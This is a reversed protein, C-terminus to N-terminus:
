KAPRITKANFVLDMCTAEVYELAAIDDEYNLASSFIVAFRDIRRVYVSIAFRDSDYTGATVDVCIRLISKATFALNVLDCTIGAADRETRTTATAQILTM